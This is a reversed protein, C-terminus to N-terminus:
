HGISGRQDLDCAFERQVEGALGEAVTGAQESHAVEGSSGCLDHGKGRSAKPPNGRFRLSSGVDEVDGTLDDHATHGRRASNM